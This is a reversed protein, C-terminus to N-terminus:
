EENNGKHLVTELKEILFDIKSIIKEKEYSTARVVSANGVPKVASFESIITEIKHLKGEFNKIAASIPPKQLLTNLQEKEM